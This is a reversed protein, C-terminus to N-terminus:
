KTRTKLHRGGFNISDVTRPDSGEVHWYKRASSVLGLACLSARFAVSSFVPGETEEAEHCKAARMSSRRSRLKLESIQDCSHSEYRRAQKYGRCRITRCRAAARRITTDRDEAKLESMKAAAAAAIKGATILEFPLKEAHGM